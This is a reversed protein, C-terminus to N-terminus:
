ITNLAFARRKFSRNWFRGFGILRRNEADVITEHDVFGINKALIAQFCNAISSPIHFFNSQNNSNHGIPRLFFMVILNIQM